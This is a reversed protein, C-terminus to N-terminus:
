WGGGGKGGSPKYSASKGSGWVLANYLDALGKSKLKAPDYGFDDGVFNLATAAGRDGAQAMQRLLTTFKTGTALAYTAASVPKGGISFAFGGDKRRQRTAQTGSAAAGGGGGGGFGGGFSIGGAGAAAARAAAKKQEAMQLDFQRRQENLQERALDQQQEAQLISQGQTMQNRGLDNLAELLTNKQTVYKGKLNAVAPAYDTAAYKAQEAVPIGSFGLGRGRASALINENAQSLRADLGSLEADQQAPAADLQTQVATRSGSYYPDLEAM